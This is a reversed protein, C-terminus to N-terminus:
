VSRITYQEQNPNPPVYIDVGKVKKLLYNLLHSLKIHEDM